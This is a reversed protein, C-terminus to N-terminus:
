LYKKNEWDFGIFFKAKKNGLNRPVKLLWFNYLINVIEDKLEFSTQLILGSTYLGKM